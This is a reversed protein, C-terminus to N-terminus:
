QLSRVFCLRGTGGGWQHQHGNLPHGCHAKAQMSELEEEEASSLKVWHTAEFMKLDLPDGQTKGELLLLSHCSVM